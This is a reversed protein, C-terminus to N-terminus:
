VVDNHLCIEMINLEDDDVNEFRNNKFIIGISLSDLLWPRLMSFLKLLGSKVKMFNCNTCKLLHNMKQYHKCSCLVTFNDMVAMYEVM